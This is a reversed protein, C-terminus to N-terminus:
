HVTRARATRATWAVRTRCIDPRGARAAALCGGGPRHRDAAGVGVRRVPRDPWRPSLRAARRRRGADVRRGAVVRHAPTRAHASAGRCDVPRRDPSRAELAIEDLHVLTWGCTGTPM